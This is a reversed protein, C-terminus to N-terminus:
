GSIKQGYVIEELKKLRQDNSEMLAIVEKLVLYESHITMVTDQAHTFLLRIAEENESDSKDLNMSGQIVKTQEIHADKILDYAERLHQEAGAYDQARVAQMAQALSTRGDGASTIISMSSQLISEMNQMDIFREIGACQVIRLLYLCLFRREQLILKRSHVDARSPAPGESSDM